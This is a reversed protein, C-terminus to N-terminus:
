MYNHRSHLKTQEEAVKGANHFQWQGEEISHSFAVRAAAHQLERASTKSERKPKWSINQHAINQFVM